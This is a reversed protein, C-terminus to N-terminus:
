FEEATLAEIKQSIHTKSLDKLQNWHFHSAASQFTNARYYLRLQIVYALLKEFHDESLDAYEQMQAIRFNDFLREAYAYNGSLYSEKISKITPQSTESNLNEALQKSMEIFFIVTQEESKVETKDKIQPKRHSWSKTQILASKVRQYDKASLFDNLLRAIRLLPFPGDELAAKSPLAALLLELNSFETMSM